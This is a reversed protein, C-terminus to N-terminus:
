GFTGMSQSRQLLERGYDRTGGSGGWVDMQGGIGPQRGSSAARPGFYKSPSGFATLGRRAMPGLGGSIVSRGGGGAAGQGAMMAQILGAFMGMDPGADTRREMVGAKQMAVRENLEQISSEGERAIGGRVAQTITTSGLGRSTLDQAATAQQRTTQEGIRARGAQGLNEFQALTQQYRAENAANAKDQAAQMQSIFDQLQQGGGGATAATRGSLGTLGGMGGSLWRQMMGTGVGGFGSM